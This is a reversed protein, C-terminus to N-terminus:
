RMWIDDPENYPDFVCERSWERLQALHQTLREKEEPDTSAVLRKGVLHIEDQLKLYYDLEDEPFEFDVDYETM